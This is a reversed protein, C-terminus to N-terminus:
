HCQHFTQVPAADAWAGDDAALVVTDRGARKARYLAEDVRALLDAPSRGPVPIEATVGLSITVCGGASAHHPIALSHVRMRMLEAIEHASTADTGPLIVAFEEGGYRAALDGSRHVTEKIAGAIQKLCRDGALHGYTDNFSKFHDVDAMILALPKGDRTARHWEAQLTEDFSRRNAVGTLGDLSSLERLMNELRKRESADRFVAASHLMRGSPDKVANVSLEVSFIRGDKSRSLIEGQWCGKRLVGARISDSVAQQDPANLMRVDRGIVEEATYGTIEEFAPNVSEIVGDANLIVIGEATNQFVSAALQLREEVVKREALEAALERNLSFTRRNFRAQMYTGLLAMAAIGTVLLTLAIAFWRYGAVGSLWRDAKVDVGLVAITEGTRPDIVPALGTVWAGWRDQYPPEILPKGTAFVHLLGAVEEAYVDGPSSYDPSDPPESDALFVLDGNKRGMLYVFRADANVSRIRRLQARISEFVATGADQASKELAAIRAPEFSAAATVALSRLKNQEVEEGYHEMFTTFWWGGLAAVLLAAGCLLFRTNRPLKDSRVM